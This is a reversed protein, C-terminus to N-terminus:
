KKRFTLKWSFELDRKGADPSVSFALATRCAGHPTDFSDKPLIYSGAGALSLDASATVSETNGSSMKGNAEADAISASASLSASGAKTQGGPASLPASGTKGQGGAEAAATEPSCCVAHAAGSEYGSTRIGAIPGEAFEAGGAGVSGAGSSFTDFALTVSKVSIEPDEVHFHDTRTIEEPVFGFETVCSIGPFDVPSDQGIQTIRSMAIRVSRNKETEEIRDFSCIPAVRKGDALTLVPVLAMHSVDPVAELVGNERPVPLYPDKDFYPTGGSILPLSFIHGGGRYLCLARKVPSDAFVYLSIGDEPLPAAEAADPEYGRVKWIKLVDAVQLTLSLNEGLIRNINRYSDTRRGKKWMNISAMQPDYWFLIMTRTLRRTYAFASKKQDEALDGSALAAALIQLAASEGYAGISRGYSFGFGEKNSMALVIRASKKLMEHILDPIEFDYGRCLESIEAPILISYRDFRGCGKTEDMYGREGSYERIHHLLHALLVEAADRSEWGLLARCAAIGFAVGYYNTPKHILAYDNKEDVFTRWDLRVRLKRETEKSIVRGYLGHEKLRHIGNLANLIGWTEMPMDACMDIVAPIERLAEEKENEPFVEAAMFALFNIVKGGVFQAKENYGPVGCLVINEKEDVIRRYLSFMREKMLALCQADSWSVSRDSENM